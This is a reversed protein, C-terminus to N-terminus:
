WDSGIRYLVSYTRCKRQLRRLATVAKESSYSLLARVQIDCFLELATLECPSKGAFSALGSHVSCSGQLSECCRSDDLFLIWRVHM